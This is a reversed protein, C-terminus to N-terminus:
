KKWLKRLPALDEPTIVGFLKLFALYFLGLASGSLLFAWTGHPLFYAFDSILVSGLMAILLARWPLTVQFHARTAVLIAVMLIFSVITTSLAAGVLGYRPILLFNLIIMLIVGGVALKMPTKVYGAGNIAFSLIYFVTLFGVGIAFVSMPAAAAIYREGFFLHLVEPAYAILLAIMPFLLIILLRLSKTVLASTETANNESSSKSIAPLLLVALAYFLYYPIRGVTLAANYIGTLYDSGLLAKVFYLDLTIVMEYFVLFLTLPWAFQFLTKSSFSSDAKEAVAQPFYKRTLVIDLIVAVAFVLLPSLIYGAVAGEVGFYLALSLIFGVRALARLTKLIAQVRFFHLGTFYYFYFSAAAFTPIVLSSLQFLPTLSPDRLLAAILPALLFFIVTVGLMLLVQMKLATYKIGFIKGPAKEFVESLYKSMATPIGNGILIIIATTLTVVLGFRGYEAPGLIRGAGAHVLYGSINYILEAGTLWLLNQSFKKM